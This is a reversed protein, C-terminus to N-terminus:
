QGIIPTTGYRYRHELAVRHVGLCQKGLHASELPLEANLAQGDHAVPAHDGLRLDILQFHGRAHVPNGRESAASDVLQDIGM